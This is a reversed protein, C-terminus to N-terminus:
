RRQVKGAHAELRSRQRRVAARWIEKPDFKRGEEDVALPQDILVRTPGSRHSRSSECHLHPRDEFSLPLLSGSILVCM